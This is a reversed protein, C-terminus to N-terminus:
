EKIQMLLTRIKRNTQNKSHLHLDIEGALKENKKILTEKIQFEYSLHLNTAKRDLIFM